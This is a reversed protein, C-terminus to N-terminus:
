WGIDDMLFEVVFRYADDRVLALIKKMDINMYDHVIRNRIGVMGNWEELRAKVSPMRIALAAFSDCASIPVTDGAAKLQQKAKGMAREILVQLTHLVGNEELRSLSQGNLLRQRVEDLLASHIRAIAATEQQYLDTRM